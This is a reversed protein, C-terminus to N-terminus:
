FEAPSTPFVTSGLDAFRAKIKPDALATNIERDLKEVIEPPTNRPVGIGQWISAELGPIFEGVTPIDPLAPSRTATTVALARLKGARIYEIASPMAAFMVQVQSGLLDTVAPGAGRYPVHMMNVGAMRKFLEGAVHVCTVNGSSAM